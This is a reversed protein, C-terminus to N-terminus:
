DNVSNRNAELRLAVVILLTSAVTLLIFEGVNELHPLQMKFILNAKGVLVNVFYLAFILLCIRLSWGGKKLESVSEDTKAM